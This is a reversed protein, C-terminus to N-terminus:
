KGEGIGLITKAEGLYNGQTIWKELIPDIHLPDESFVTDDAFEPDDIPQRAWRISSLAGNAANAINVVIVLYIDEWSRFQPYLSKIKRAILYSVRLGIPNEVVLYGEGKCTECSINPEPAYGGENHFVPTENISGTGHCIPCTIRTSMKQHNQDPLYILQNLSDTFNM